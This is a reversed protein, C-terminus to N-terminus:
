LVTHFASIPFFHNLMETSICREPYIEPYTTQQKHCIVNLFNYDYNNLVM